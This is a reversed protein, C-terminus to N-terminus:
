YGRYDQYLDRQDRHIDRTRKRLQRRDHEIDRQERYADGYRGWRLDENRRWQDRAIDDRLRESQRYDQRLDRRDHRSDWYGDEAKLVGAGLTVGTVVAAIALVKSYRREDRGM